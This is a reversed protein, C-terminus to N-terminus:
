HLRNGILFSIAPEHCLMILAHLSSYMELKIEKIWGAFGMVVLQNVMAM